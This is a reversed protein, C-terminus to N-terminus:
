SINNHRVSFDLSIKIRNEREKAHSFCNEVVRRLCSVVVVVVGGASWHLCVIWMRVKGLGANRLCLLASPPKWTGQPTSSSSSPSFRATTSSLPSSSRSPPPPPPPVTTSDAPSCLFQFFPFSVMIYGSYTLLCVQNVKEPWICVKNVEWESISGCFWLFIIEAGFDFALLTVRGHAGQKTVRVATGFTHAPTPPQIPAAQLDLTAHHDQLVWMLFLSAQTCSGYQTGTERLIM